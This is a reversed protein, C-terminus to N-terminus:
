TVRSPAPDLREHAGSALVERLRAAAEDIEEESTALPSVGLRVIDPPRFDGIVRAQALARTIRWADPHRLAVHAGRKAPDRPTGLVLGLDSTREILRETLEAARRELHAIGAEAVARM